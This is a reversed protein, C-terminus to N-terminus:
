EEEDEEDICTVISSRQEPTAVQYIIENTRKSEKEGMDKAINQMFETFLPILAKASQQAEERTSNPDSLIGKHAEYSKGMRFIDAFYKLILEDKFEKTGEFLEKIQNEQEETFLAGKCNLYTEVEVLSFGFEMDFSDSKGQVSLSLAMFCFFVGLIRLVIKM